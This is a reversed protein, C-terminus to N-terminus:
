LFQLVSKGGLQLGFGSMLGVSAQAVSARAPNGPTKWGLSSQNIEVWRVSLHWHVRPERSYQAIMPKLKFNM